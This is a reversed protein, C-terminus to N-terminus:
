KSRVIELQNDVNKVGPVGRTIRAAENRDKENEVKGKLTVMGNLTSVQIDDDESISDAHDIAQLVRDSIARDADNEKMNATSSPQTAHKNADHPRNECATLLFCLSSLIFLQKKM